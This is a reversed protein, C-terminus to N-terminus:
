SGHGGVARPLSFGIFIIGLLYSLALILPAIPLRRMANKKGLACRAVGVLTVLLGVIYGSAMVLLGIYLWREDCRIGDGCSDYGLPVFVITIFELLGSVAAGLVVGATVLLIKWWAPHRESAKAAMTVDQSLLSFEGEPLSM